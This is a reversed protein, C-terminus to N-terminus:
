VLHNKNIKGPPLSKEINVYEPILVFDDTKTSIQTTPQNSLRKVASKNTSTIPVPNNVFNPSPSRRDNATRNHHSRYHAQYLMPNM